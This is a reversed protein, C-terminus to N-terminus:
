QLLKNAKAQMARMRPTAAASKAADLRVSPLPSDAPLQVLYLTLQGCSLYLMTKRAATKIATTWHPPWPSKIM